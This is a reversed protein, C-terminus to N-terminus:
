KLNKIFVKNYLEPSVQQLYNFDRGNLIDAAKTAQGLKTTPQGMHERIAQLQHPKIGIFVQEALDAGIQAHGDGSVIKGFDHGLAAIMQDQKTYGDPTPLKWASQAVRKTHEYTNPDERHWKPNELRHEMKYAGKGFQKAVTHQVQMAKRPNVTGDSNVVENINFRPGRYLPYTGSSILRSQKSKTVEPIPQVKIREWWGFPSRELITANSLDVPGETVYEDPLITENAVKNQGIEKTASKVHIFKNDKPISIYRKPTPLYPNIFMRHADQWPGGYGWWIYPTQGKSSQGPYLKGSKIYAGNKRFSSKHNGNDYHVMSNPDKLQRDLWDRELMQKATLGNRQYDQYSKFDKTKNPILKLGKDVVDKFEKAVRATKVIRAFDKIGVNPPDGYHIDPNEPSFGGFLASIANGFNSISPGSKLFNSAINLNRKLKQGISLQSYEKYKRRAASKEDSEVKLEDGNQLKIIM